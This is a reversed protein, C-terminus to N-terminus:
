GARPLVVTQVGSVNPGPIQEGHLGPRAPALGRRAPQPSGARGLARRWRERRDRRRRDAAPLSSRTRCRTPGNTRTPVFQSCAHARSPSRFVTRATRSPPSRPSSSGGGISRCGTRATPSPSASQKSGFGEGPEQPRGAAERWVVRLVTVAEVWAQIQEGVTVPIWWTGVGLYGYDRVFEAIADETLPLDALTPALTPLDDLPSTAGQDGPEPYELVRFSSGGHQPKRADAWEPLRKPRFGASEGVPRPEM